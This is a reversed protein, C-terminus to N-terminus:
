VLFGFTAETKPQMAHVKNMRHPWNSCIDCMAHDTRKDTHQDCPNVTCFRSFWDLHWHPPLASEQPDLSGQILNLHLDSSDTQLCLDCLDVICGKAM